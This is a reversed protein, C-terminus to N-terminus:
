RTVKEFEYAFVYPNSAWDYPAQTDFIDWVSWKFIEQPTYDEGTPDCHEILPFYAIGEKLCDAGSVDQLREVKISKIKLFTRRWEEQMYKAKVPDSYDKITINKQVFVTEGVKYKSEQKIFDQIPQKFRRLGRRDKHVGYINEGIINVIEYENGYGIVKIPRRTMVKIGDDIAKVEQTNFPIGQM